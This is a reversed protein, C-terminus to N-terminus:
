LTFFDINPTKSPFVKFRFFLFQHLYYDSLNLLKGVSASTAPVVSSSSPSILANVSSSLASVTQVQANSANSTPAPTAALSSSSTSM